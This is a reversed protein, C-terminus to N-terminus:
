VNQNQIGFKLAIKAVAAFQDLKTKCSRLALILEQTLNLLENPTFLVETQHNEQNITSLSTGNLTTNIDSNPKNMFWSSYKINSTVPTSTTQPIYTPPQSFNRVQPRSITKNIKSSTNIRMSIYDNRKPCSYDKSSHNQGCLCCLMQFNTDNLHQCLTSQHAKGCKSCRPPLNCNKAGHGYLQCNNCQTPGNRSPNYPRWNVIVNLISKINKVDNLKTSNLCYILYLAENEYRSSKLKMSKVDLYPVNAETLGQKVYDLEFKPLGSLVFKTTKDIPTDHTFFHTNSDKLIKVLSTYDEITDVNTKIGISMYKISYSTIKATQMLLKIDAHSINTTIIPPIKIKHKIPINCHNQDSVDDPLIAYRNNQQQINQNSGTQSPNMTTIRVKNKVNAIESVQKRKSSIPIFLDNNNSYNNEM